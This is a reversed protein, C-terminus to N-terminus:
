SYFCLYEVSSNNATNLNKTIVQVRAREVLEVAGMNIIVSMAKIPDSSKEKKSWLYVAPAKTGKNLNGDM